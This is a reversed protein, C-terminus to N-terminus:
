AATHSPLFKVTFIRIKQSLNVLFTVGNVFMMNATLTIFKQVGYFYRPVYTEETEVRSTKMRM